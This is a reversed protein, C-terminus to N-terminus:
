KAPKGSIREIADLSREYQELCGKRIVLERLADSPKVGKTWACRKTLEADIPVYVNQKVTVTETRVVVGPPIEEKEGKFTACSTALLLLPILMLRM